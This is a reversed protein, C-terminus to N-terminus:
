NYLAFTEVSKSFFISKNILDINKKAYNEILDKNSKINKIILDIEKEFDISVKVDHFQPCKTFKDIIEDFIINLFVEIKIEGLVDQILDWNTEIIDFCTMSEIIYKKLDKDKIFEKINSYFLFSYLIFNLFRYTIDKIERYNEEKKKFFDYEIPKIGKILINKEQKIENEYDNLYKYPITKDSYSHNLKLNKSHEDFFIRIHGERRFLIHNEGGIKKKCNPCNWVMAPFTCKSVSYHYGCSCVYAGYKLPEKILNKKIIDFTKVKLTINPFNGPIFSDDIISSIKKTLLKFYFGDKNNKDKKSSVLISFIFRLGYILIIIKKRKNRDDDNEKEFKPIIKENIIKYDLFIKFFELIDKDKILDKTNLYENITSLYDIYNQRKENNELNSSSCYILIIINSLFTYLYEYSNSELFLNDFVKKNPDNFSTKLLLENYKSYDQHKNDMLLVPIQLLFDDNDLKIDKDNYEIFGYKDYDEKTIKNYYEKFAEWDNDLKKFLIKLCYFLVYKKQPVKKSYLIENVSKRESFKQYGDESYMIEVLYNM